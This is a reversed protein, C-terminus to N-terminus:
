RRMAQRPHRDEERSEVEGRRASRSSPTTERLGHYGMDVADDLLVLGLDPYHLVELVREGRDPFPRPVERRKRCDSSQRGASLTRVSEVSRNRNEAARHVNRMSLPARGQGAGSRERCPAAM